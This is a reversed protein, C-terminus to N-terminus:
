FKVKAFTAVDDGSVDKPNDDASTAAM